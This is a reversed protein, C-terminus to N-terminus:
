HACKRLSTGVGSEGRGSRGGSAHTGSPPAIDPSLVQARLEKGRLELPLAVTFTVPPAPEIVDQGLDIDTNNVDIFLRGRDKYLTLGVKWSVEPAQLSANAPPCVRALTRALGALLSPREETAKYFSLGPDERLTLVKGKGLPRAGGEVAMLAALTSGTPCPGFNGAEGL